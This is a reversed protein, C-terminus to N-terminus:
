RDRYILVPCAASQACHQSVSGLLLGTFGGRGRSGVVLLAADRSAAVLVQAAPGHEVRAVLPVRPKDGLVQAVTRDLGNRAEGELDLNSVDPGWGYGTPMTWVAVVHLAAGTAEAQAAAWRLANASTESGDVGVVIFPPNTEQAM